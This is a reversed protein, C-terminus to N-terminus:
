GAGSHLPWRIAQCQLLTSVAARVLLAVAHQLAPALVDYQFFMYTLLTYPRHLVGSIDSPLELYPAASFTSGMLTCCVDVLRVVLFLAVNIFIFKVPLQGTNYKHRLDDLIGM